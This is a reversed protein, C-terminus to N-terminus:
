SLLRIMLIGISLISLVNAAVSLINSVRADRRSKECDEHITALDKQMKEIDIM